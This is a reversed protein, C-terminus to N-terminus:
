AEQLLRWPLTVCELEAVPDVVPHHATTHSHKEECGKHYNQLHHYTKGWLTVGGGVCCGARGVAFVACLWCQPWVASGGPYFVIGRCVRRGWEIPRREGSESPGSGPDACLCTFVLEGTWVAGILFHLHRSARGSITLRTGQGNGSIRERRLKQARIL